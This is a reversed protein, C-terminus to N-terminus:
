GLLAFFHLADEISFRTYVGLIVWYLPGIVVTCVNGRANFVCGLGSYERPGATVDAM